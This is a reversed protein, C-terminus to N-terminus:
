YLEDPDYIKPIRKLIREDLIFTIAAFTGLSHDFRKHNAAPYIFNTGGMQSINRLRQLFFSDLIELELKNLRIEGWIPDRIYGHKKHNLDFIDVEKISEFYEFGSKWHPLVYTEFYSKFQIFCDELHSQNNKM